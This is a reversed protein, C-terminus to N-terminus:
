RLATIEIRKADACDQNEGGMAWVFRYRTTGCGCHISWPPSLVVQRDAVWLPRTQQPDGMLHLVRHDPPVDFYCLVESRRDHTHCPMTNWVSGPMVETFGLVLQCSAIGAAHVYHFLTRENADDCTGLSVQTADSRTALVTPYTAHAPYSILYFVAPDTPSASTFRIHRSSRGVYLCDHRNLQYTSGDVVIHGTSGLNLIGLERRECFYDAKLAAPPALDLQATTPIASGVVARDLDTSALRTEGPAFLDDILFSARLGESDLTASERPSPTLRSTTM